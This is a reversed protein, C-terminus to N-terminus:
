RARFHGADRTEDSSRELQELTEEALVVYIADGKSKEWKGWVSWEYERITQTAGQERDALEIWWRCFGDLASIEARPM